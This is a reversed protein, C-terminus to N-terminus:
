LFEIHMNSTECLLVLVLVLTLIINIKTALVTGHQNSFCVSSMGRM